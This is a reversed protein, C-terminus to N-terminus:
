ALDLAVPTVPMSALCIGADPQVHSGVGHSLSRNEFMRREVEFMSDDGGPKLVERDGRDINWVAAFVERRLHSEELRQRVVCRLEFGRAPREHQTAVHVDGAGVHVNMWLLSLSTCHALSRFFTREDFPQQAVAQDVHM